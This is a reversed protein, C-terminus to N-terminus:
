LIELVEVEFILTENSGITEGQGHLGYALDSPIVLTAKGGAGLLQLGETFGAIFRGAYSTMPEERTQDFVSGDTHMGKYHLKIRDNKKVLDGKGAETIKYVLGSEARTYEGTSMISDIFAVGKASNEIAEPQEALIKDAKDQAYQQARNLLQQFAAQYTYTDVVSDANFTSEIYKLILDCNAPVQFQSPMAKQAQWVQMGAQIGMIYSLAATDRTAIAKVGRMFDAENIGAKQEESMNALERDLTARFNSGLLEGYAISISDGLAVADSDINDATKSGGCSSLSLTLAAAGCLTTLITKKM